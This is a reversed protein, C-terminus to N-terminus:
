LTRTRIMCTSELGQSTRSLQFSCPLTRDRVTTLCIGVLPQRPALSRTASPMMSCPSGTLRRRHEAVTVCGQLRRNHQSARVFLQLATTRGRYCSGSLRRRCCNKKELNEKQRGVVLRLVSPPRGASSTKRLLLKSDPLKFRRQARAEPRAMKINNRESEEPAIRHLEKLM